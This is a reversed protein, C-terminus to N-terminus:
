SYNEEFWNIIDRSEYLAVGDIALCPVQTKGGIQMLEQRAQSDMNIDKESIEIGRDRLYNRVMVCFPCSSFHYLVLNPM